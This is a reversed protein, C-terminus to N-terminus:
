GRKSKPSQRQEINSVPAPASTSVAPVAYGATLVRAISPSLPQEAAYSEVKDKEIAALLDTSARVVPSDEKQGIALKMTVAQKLYDEANEMRGLKFYAEGILHLNKAIDTHNEFRYFTCLVPHIALLSVLAIASNGQKIHNLALNQNSIFYLFHMAKTEAIFESELRVAKKLCKQAANLRGELGMLIAQIHESEALSLKVEPHKKILSEEIEIAKQIHSHGQQPENKRRSMLASYRQTAAHMLHVSDDLEEVNMQEYCQLARNLIGKEDKFDPDISHAAGVLNYLRLNQISNDKTDTYAESTALTLDAFYCAAQNDRLFFTHYIAVKECVALLNLPLIGNEEAVELCATVERIADAAQLGKVHVNYHDFDLAEHILAQHLRSEM